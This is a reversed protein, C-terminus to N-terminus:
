LVHVTFKHKNYYEKDVYGIGMHREQKLIDINYCNWTSTFVFHFHNSSNTDLDNQIDIIKNRYKVKM